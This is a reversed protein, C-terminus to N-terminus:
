AEGVIIVSTHTGDASTGSGYRGHWIKAQNTAYNSHNENDPGISYEYEGNAVLAYDKNSMNGDFSITYRGTSNRTVSSIGNDDYISGNNGVFSVWKLTPIRGEPFSIAM